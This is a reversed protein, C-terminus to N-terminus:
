LGAKTQPPVQVQEEVNGGSEAEAQMIETEKQKRLEKKQMQVEVQSKIKDEKAVQMQQEMYEKYQAYYNKLEDKKTQPLSSYELLMPMTIEPPLQAIQFFQTLQQFYRENATTSKVAEDVVIDIQVERITDLLGDNLNLYFVDDQEGILRVIQQPAMLNKLLWVIRESLKLRWLRLNDFLSLRSVGGAEARAQVARGSEAANESFGLANKGGTYDTMRGISFHITNFIDPNIQSENHAQIAQHSNVPIYPNTKSAEQRVKEIDWGTKLMAEIVTKMGKNQTGLAFDLQSFSRNVEIQPSILNDVVGFFLGELFYSFFPVYPSNSLNTLTRNYLSDGIVITQIYKTATTSIVAVRETSLEDDMTLREGSKAYTKILTDYYKVALKKDDFRMLNNGIDDVVVYSVIKTQEYHEYYDILDRDPNNHNANYGTTKIRDDDYKGYGRVDTAFSNTAQTVLETADPFMELITQKSLRTKRLVWRADALDPRIANVDWYMEDFPIYDVRPYGYLMESTDWYVSAWARGTILGTRFIDTELNHIGNLQEVWKMLYTLLQAAAEDGPERAAAKADMRTQMQTGVLHEIKHLIENFVLPERQQYRHAAIEEETWQNGAWFNINRYGTANLEDIINKVSEYDDIVRNYAEQGTIGLLSNDQKAKM